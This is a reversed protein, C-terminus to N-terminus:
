PSKTQWGRKIEDLMIYVYRCLYYFLRPNEYPKSCHRCLEIEDIRKQTHLKRLRYYEEGFWIQTISKEELDGIILENNLDRCCPVVKGDYTIVFSNWLHSCPHYKNQKVSLKYTGPNKKLNAAFKGGWSHAQFHFYEDAPNEKFLARLEELEKREPEEGSTFRINQIKVVPFHLNKSKKFALLSDINNYVKAWDAGSRAFEFKEKNPSFDMRISILGANILDKSLKETLLMGNTSLTTGIGNKSAIEIMEPLAPHLLPEGALHLTIVLPNLEKLQCIIM